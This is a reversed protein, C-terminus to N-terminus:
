TVTDTQLPPWATPVAGERSPGQPHPMGVPRGPRKSCPDVCTKQLPGSIKSKTAMDDIM